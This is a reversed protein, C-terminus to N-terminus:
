HGGSGAPVVVFRTRTEEVAVVSEVVMLWNVLVGRGEKETRSSSARTGALGFDFGCGM